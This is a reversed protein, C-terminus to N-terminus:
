FRMPRVGGGGYGHGGRPGGGPGRRGPAKGGLTNFRYVFHVMFYSGLTNYETDSMMTESISRSLSSQQKLIDYIKFRILLQKKKLFAKSLQSNWMFNERANGEYDYGERIFYTLDTYLEVGWPLYLQM